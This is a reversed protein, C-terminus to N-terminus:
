KIVGCIKLIVELLHLILHLLPALTTMRDLFGQEEKKDSRYHKGKLM